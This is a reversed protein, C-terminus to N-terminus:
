IIFHLIFVLCKDIFKTFDDLQEAKAPAFAPFDSFEDDDMSISPGGKIEHENERYDHGFIVSHLIGDMGLIDAHM